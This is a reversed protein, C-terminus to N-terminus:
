IGVVTPNKDFSQPLTMNRVDDHLIVLGVGRIKKKTKYHSIIWYM